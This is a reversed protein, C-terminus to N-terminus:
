ILSYDNYWVLFAAEPLSTILCIHTDLKSIGLGKVGLVNPFFNINLTNM